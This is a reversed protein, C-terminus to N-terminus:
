IQSAASPRLLWTTINSVIDADSFGPTQAVKRWEPDTVFTSWSKERAALSDHVLMYVLAPMRPGAILHGFFVPMLGTRKFIAIEGLKEFMEVKKLHAKESPSEYIRIEFIRPAKSASQAPLEIGPMASFARLLWTEQRLFAPDAATADTYPAAAAQYDADKALAADLGLWADASRFPALSFLSPQAPGAIPEFVGVPTVGARNLAPVRAKAFHEQLRRPQGARLTFHQWVFLQPSAPAPPTAQHAEAAESSSSLTTMLPAALTTSLFNRRDVDLSSIADRRSKTQLALARTVVARDSLM